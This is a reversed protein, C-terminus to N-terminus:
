RLEYLGGKLTRLDNAVQRPDAKPRADKSPHSLRASVAAALAQVDDLADLSFSRPKSDLCLMTGRGYELRLPIAAYSRISWPVMDAVIPDPFTEVDIHTEPFLLDSRGCSRGTARPLPGPPADSALLVYLATGGCEIDLVAARCEASECASSLATRVVRDDDLATRLAAFM